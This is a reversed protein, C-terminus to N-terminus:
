SSFRARGIHHRHLWSHIRQSLTPVEPCAFYIERNRAMLLQIAELRPDRAHFATGTEHVYEDCLYEIAHGLIELAHGARPSIQRRCVRGAVARTAPAAAAISIGTISTAMLGDKSQEDIV